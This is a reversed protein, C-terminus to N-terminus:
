RLLTAPAPLWVSAQKMQAGAFLPIGTHTKLPNSLGPVDQVHKTSLSCGLDQLPGAAGAAQAYAAAAACQQMPAWGMVSFLGQVQGCPCPASFPM